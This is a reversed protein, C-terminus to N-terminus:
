WIVPQFYLKANVDYQPMLVSASGTTNGKAITLQM